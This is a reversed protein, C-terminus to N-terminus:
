EEVELMRDAAIALYGAADAYNDRKDQGCVMRAIKLLTMMRAVDIPEIQSMEKGLTKKDRPHASLYADWLQAILYFSDEPSGYADQRDGTIIQKAEDLLDGLNHKM